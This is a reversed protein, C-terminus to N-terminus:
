HRLLYQRWVVQACLEVAGSLYPRARNFLHTGIFVITTTHSRGRRAVFGIKKSKGEMKKEEGGKGERGHQLWYGVKAHEIACTPSSSDCEHMHM